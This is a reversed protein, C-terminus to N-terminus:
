INSNIKELDFNVEKRRTKKSYLIEELTGLSMTLEECLQMRIDLNKEGDKKNKKRKKYENRIYINRLAIENILGSEKLKAFIKTKTLELIKM